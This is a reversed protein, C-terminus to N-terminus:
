VKEGESFGNNNESDLNLLMVYADTNDEYYKRVTKIIKFELKQYLRIAPVNTVKVELIISNFDRNKCYEIFFRMLREGMKQRRYREDIAISLIHAQNKTSTTGGLLFGVLEGNYYVTFCLSPEADYFYYLISESFPYDFSRREIEYVRPIEERKM